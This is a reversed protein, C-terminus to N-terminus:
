TLAIRAQRLLKPCFSLIAGDKRPNLCSIHDGLANMSFRPIARVLHLLFVGGEINIGGDIKRSGDFVPCEEISATSSAPWKLQSHGFITYETRSVLCPAFLTLPGNHTINQTPTMRRSTTTPRLIVLFSLSFKPLLIYSTARLITQKSM